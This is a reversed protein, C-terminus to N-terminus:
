NDKVQTCSQSTNEEPRTQAYKNDIDKAQRKTKYRRTSLVGANSSERPHKQGTKFYTRFSAMKKRTNSTNIKTKKYLSKNTIKTPFRINLVTRLQRRHFTDLKHEDQKTLAWTECNYLLVSKVIAKYLKLRIHRKIQDKRLWVSKLKHLAANSLKRRCVDEEDGLLSGVKKM